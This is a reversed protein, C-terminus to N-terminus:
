LMNRPQRPVEVHTDLFSLTVTGIYDFSRQIYSPARGDFVPSEWRSPAGDASMLAITLGLGSIKWDGQLLCDAVAMSVTVRCVAENIIICEPKLNSHM